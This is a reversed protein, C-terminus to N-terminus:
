LRPRLPRKRTIVSSTPTASSISYFFDIPPVVKTITTGGSIILILPKRRKASTNIRPLTRRNQSVCKIEIKGKYFHPIILRPVINRWMILYPLIYFECPFILNQTIENIIQRKIPFSVPFNCNSKQRRIIRWTEIYTLNTDFFVLSNSRKLSIPM